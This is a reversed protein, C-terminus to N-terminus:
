CHKPPDMYILIRIQGNRCAYCMKLSRSCYGMISVWKHSETNAWLLKSALMSHFTPYM